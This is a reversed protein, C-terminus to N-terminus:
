YGLVPRRADGDQEARSSDAMAATCSRTLVGSGKPPLVNGAGVGDTYVCFGDRRIARIVMRYHERPLVVLHGGKYEELIKGISDDSLPRDVPLSPLSDRTEQAVMIHSPRYCLPPGLNQNPSPYYFSLSLGGLWTTESAEIM